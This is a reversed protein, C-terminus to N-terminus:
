RRTRRRRRSTRTCTVEGLGERPGMYSYAIGGVVVLGLGVAAYKAWPTGSEEPPSSAPPTVGGGTGLKSRFQQVQATTFRSGYDQLLRTWTAPGLVGDAPLGRWKQYAEVALAFGAQDLMRPFAATENDAPGATLYPPALLSSAGRVYEAWGLRQGLAWNQSDASSSVAGLGGEEQIM